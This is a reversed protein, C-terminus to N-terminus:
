VEVVMAHADPGLLDLVYGHQSPPHSGILEDLAPAPNTAVIRIRRGASFASEVIWVLTAHDPNGHRGNASVVYTDATNREFFGRDANRDSGHHQLKMVDVHFNGGPRLGAQDLGQEIHDARADGTLLLLREGEEALLVISSLNPISRDANALQDPSAARAHERLWALWAKRLRRLNDDTPGVVRLTANGLSFVPDALEDPSILAGKFAHNIPIKLKRAGRRIREGDAIGFLALPLDGLAVGQTGANSMVMWLGHVLEGDGEDVTASFSNHWIDQVHVSPQEAYARQRELEALLDLVGTTHDTDVHSVVVAELTGGAGLVQELYPALHAEWTRAPGGDILMYRAPVGAELLLCDGEGARIVHLRM